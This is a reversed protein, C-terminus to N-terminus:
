LTIRRCELYYRKEWAEGMSFTKRPLAGDSIVSAFLASKDIAPLLLGAHGPRQGLDLTVDAGHVYDIGTAGGSALWGDLWRQLTAVTLNAQPRTFQVLWAGAACVLGLAQGDGFGAVQAALSAPEAPQIRLDDGFHSHMAALVDGTVGFLVRHIPEFDLGADHVNGIEVLAWRAPHHDRQENTLTERVQLWWTRATALSHNGDGVAFQLPAAGGAHPYKAAFAAPDTLQGITSFLHAEAASDLAWGCVQGGNQMLEIAYLAKLETKRAVLPGLVAHDPDDFLLLVHPLELPAGARVRLRPPIRDVITGETARVLSTSGKSFDYADLDVELVVGTRTHSGHPGQTTRQVLIAGRHPVLLGAQMVSNMTAHIREIRAVDGAGLYVEPLILHLTSPSDGVIEATKRWYEPQSTYQDCAVVPWSAIDVTAAPLLLAPSRIALQTM